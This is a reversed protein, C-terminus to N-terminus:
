FNSVILYGPPKVGQEYGWRCAAEQTPFGGKRKRCKEPATIECMWTTGPSAYDRAVYGRLVTEKETSQKAQEYIKAVETKIM